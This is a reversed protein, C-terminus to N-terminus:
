AALAYAYNDANLNNAWSILSPGSLRPMGNEIGRGGDFGHRGRKAQPNTIAFHPNSLRNAACKELGYGTYSVNVIYLLKAFRDLPSKPCCAPAPIFTEKM